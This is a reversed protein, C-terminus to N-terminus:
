RQEIMTRLTTLVDPSVQSLSKFIDQGQQIGVFTYPVGNMTISQKIFDADTSAAEFGKRLAAVAEAPTAPPALGVFTMEGIQTTLWNLANWTPGSPMNGKISMYLEPFSPIDTIHPKKEFKGQADVPVFYNIGIAQGSQVFDKSRTRFTTISTNQFQIENRQLALFVDTGGKYGTILKHPVGLTALSLRGLLGSIGTVTPDGINITEKVKAIDEPKKLGGPIIDTRAYNVRTDGIGGLFEFKEYRARMGPLALAQALPDWPGWLVTLGDPKAKEQVYNTALIGAGGPMNQIVINPNGPIHKKLYTGLTRAFVDTTGGTDLGIVVTITKGAYYDQAFGLTPAGLTVGAAVISSVLMHKM